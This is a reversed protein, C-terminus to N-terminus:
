RTSSRAAGAQGVGAVRGVAAAVHREDHACRRRAV